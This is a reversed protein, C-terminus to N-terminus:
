AGWRVRELHWLQFLRELRQVSVERREALGGGVMCGLEFLEALVESLMGGVDFFDGLHVRHDDCTVFPSECLVCGRIVTEALVVLIKARQDSLQYPLPVYSTRCLFRKIAAEGTEFLTEISLPCLQRGFDVAQHLEQPLPLIVLLSTLARLQLLPLHHFLLLVLRCLCCLLLRPSTYM